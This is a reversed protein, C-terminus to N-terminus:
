QKGFCNREANAEQIAVYEQVLTVLRIVEKADFSGAAQLAENVETQITIVDEKQHEIAEIDAETYDSVTGMAKANDILQTILYIKRDCESNHLIVGVYSNLKRYAEYLGSYVTNYTERFEAKVKPLRCSHKCTECRPTLNCMNTELHLETKNRLLNSLQTLVRQKAQSLDPLEGVKQMDLASIIEANCAMPLFVDLDCIIKSLADQEKHIAEITHQHRHINREHKLTAMVGLLTMAGGLYSGAFMFWDAAAIGQVNFDFGLWNQIAIAIHLFAMIIFPTLVIWSIWWFLRKNKM